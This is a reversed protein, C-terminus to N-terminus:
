KWGREILDIKRDLDTFQNRQAWFPIKNQLQSWIKMEGKNPGQKYDEFAEGTVVGTTVSDVFQGFRQITDLAVTPSRLVSWAETPSFFTSLERKLRVIHYLVFSDRDDDEDWGFFALAALGAILYLEFLTKKVNARRLDALEKQQEESLTEQEAPTLLDEDRLGLGIIYKLNNIDKTIWGDKGFMNSFFRIASLYYGEEQSGLREDYYQLRWRADIGPKLWNRMMMVLRGWSYARIGPSDITNYIGNMRQGVAIIKNRINNLEVDTVPKGNLTYGKAVKVVGDKVELADYLNKEGDPGQLKYQNMITLMLSGNMELTTINNLFNLNQTDLVRKTVTNDKGLALNGRSQDEPNFYDFVSAFKTTKKRQGIEGASAPIEKFFKAKGYRWDKMTFWRGGIAEKLMTAEGTAINSFAVNLNGAMMRIGTYRLLTDVAKATDVQLKGIKINGENAKIKGYVMRSIFQEAMKYSNSNDGPVTQIYGDNDVVAVRDSSLLGAFGPTRKTKTVDRSALVDKALELDHVIELLEDHANMEDLFMLVTSSLDLSVERVSMRGDKGDQRSIFRVPLFDIPNGAEDTAQFDTEDYTRRFADLSAQKLVRLKGAGKEESVLEWMSRKISPIRLGPRMFRPITKQAKLYSGVIMEYYDRLPDGKPRAMIEKGAKSDPDLFSIATSGKVLSKPDLIFKHREHLDSPDIKQKRLWEEYKENVDLWQEKLLKETKRYANAKANIVSKGIVRLVADRSDVIADLGRNVLSIDRDAVRLQAKIDELELNQNTNKQVWSAVVDISAENLDTELGGIAAILEDIAMLFTREGRRMDDYEAPNQYIHKRIEKLVKYSNLQEKLPRLTKAAVQPSSSLAKKIETKLERVEKIANGVYAVLAKKNSLGILAQQTKEAGSSDKNTRKLRAIRKDLSQTIRKFINNLEKDAKDNLLNYNGMQNKLLRPNVGEDVVKMVQEITTDYIDPLGFLRRVARVLRNWWGKGQFIKQFEENTLMEAIFEEQNTFGYSRKGFMESLWGVSTRYLRDITAKFEKQTETIPHNYAQITFAHVLEHMLVYRFYEPGQSMINANIEIAHFMGMYRGAVHKDRVKFDSIEMSLPKIYEESNMMRGLLTKMRQNTETDYLAKVVEKADARFDSFGFSAAWEPLDDDIYEIYHEDQIISNYVPGTNAPHISQSNGNDTFEVFKNAEGLPQIEKYTQSDGVREYLRWKKADRDFMRAYQAWERNTNKDYLSSAQTAVFSTVHTGTPTTREIGGVTSSVNGDKDVRLPVTKVINTNAFIHRIVVKAANVPDVSKAGESYANTLSAHYAALGSDRWFEAPVLDVFSYPTTKFGSTQISFRVLDYALQKVDKNSDTMLDWWANTLNTKNFNGHTNNIGVLQVTGRRNTDVPKLAQLLLNKELRPNAAVVKDIYKNIDRSPQFYSWRSDYNPSIKYLAKDMEKNEGFMYYTMAHDVAQIDDKDRLRADKSLTAEAIEQRVRSFADSNYPYFQKTFQLAARIAYNYFAAVRKVTSKSLTFVDPSLEVKSRGSTVHTVTDIYSQIAAISTFDRATDSSLATNVKAMDQGAYYYQVFDYLVQGQHELNDVVPITLSSALNGPNITHIRKSEAKEYQTILGTFREGLSKIANNLNSDGNKFYEDALGRLVPQNMFTLALKQDVGLDTMYGLTAANFTTINLYGLKPDKQADLASNQQASHNDSILNGVNDVRRGLTDFKYGDVEIKIPTKVQIQDQPISQLTAHGVSFKSFTGIMAKSYKALKEMELDTTVAFPTTKVARSVVGREILYDIMEDHVASDLPNLVELSHAPNTLIAWHIDFLKNAKTDEIASKAVTRKMVYSKDVDFDMGGQKTMEGPIMIVSGASEPLIRAIRVPLMSNKGQTPIRYIILQMAKQQFPNLKNWIIKGTEPDTVEAAKIGLGRVFRAPVGVEAEVLKGDKNTIFKLESDGITEGVGFDALNILSDGPLKQTMLRKKFLGTLIQEYKKGLAPFDLGVMFDPQDLKNKIILLSDFYNDPLDRHSLEELLVEKLDILFQLKRSAPVRLNDELKFLSKFDEYDAKIIDTWTEHYEQVIDKGSLKRDGLQYSNDPEINGVILKEIQTGALIETKAKEPIFFPFRLSEVPVDRGVIPKSLDNNVAYSGVKVSESDSIIDINDREMAGLLQKFAQHKNAWHPLLPTISEKFQEKLIMSSGDSLKMLREGYTFPKLPQLLLKNELGLLYTKQEEPMSTFTFAQYVAKGQRWAANYLMEHDDTWMGNALAIDRYTAIRCYSQADTKNVRSYAAAIKAAVNNSTGKDIASQVDVITTAPDILQALSLLYDPSNSKISSAFIGRSYTKKKGASKIDQNYYGQLGPTILQYGRKFYTEANKYFALDGHFVKSMELRWALDNYFFDKLLRTIDGASELAKPLNENAYRETNPVRSILGLEILKDFYAREEAKIFDAIVQQIKVEYDALRDSDLTGDTLSDALGPIDNLAPMYVFKAANKYSAVDNPSFSSDKDVGKLNAKLRQIRVIESDVTGRLVDQLFASSANQLRKPLLISLQQSKDSLTGLYVYGSKNGSNFWATLRSIFSDQSTTEGYEKPQSTTGDRFASFVNVQVQKRVRPSLLEQLFKNPKYFNDQRFWGIKENSTLDNTLQSILDTIYTNLNIASVQNGKENIFTKAQLDEVYDKALNALNTLLGTQEFPNAGDVATQLFTELTAADQGFLMQNVDTTRKPSANIKDWVQTPLSVGVQALMHQLFSRNEEYPTKNGKAKQVKLEELLNSARKTNVVGDSDLLAKKIATNEWDSILTREINRRDTEIVRAVPQKNEYGVMTTFFRYKSRNFTTFFQSVIPDISNQGAKIHEDLQDKVAAIIPDQSALESIRLYLDKYGALKSSLNAYVRNFDIFKPTGFLTKSIIPQGTATRAITGEATREYEPITALFRKIKASLTKLPSQLLFSVGHIREQANPDDALVEDGENRPVTDEDETVPTPITKKIKVSFGYKGLNQILTTQYGPITNEERRVDEWNNVIAELSKSQLALTKLEDESLDIEENEYAEKQKNATQLALQYEARLEDLLKAVNEPIELIDDFGVAEKEALEMAKQLLRHTSANLAEIQQNVRTFGPVLRYRLDDAKRLPALDRQLNLEAKVKDTLEFNAVNEFLREISTKFGLAKRIYDLIRQFLSRSSAVRPIVTGDSLMYARFDEALAEELELKSKNGYIRAADKIMREYQAPSLQTLTVFHFAEHYGTGEEALQSLLIHANHYYGFAELGGISLVRDVGQAISLYEPGFKDQMWDLEKQSIVKFPGTVKSVLRYRTDTEEDAAQDWDIKRRKGTKKTETAPKEEIIQQQVIPRVPEIVEKTVPEVTTRTSKIVPDLYITANFFSYGAPLDTTISATAKLYEYYNKYSKGFIDVFTDERNLFNKDINKFSNALTDDFAKRIESILTPDLNQSHQLAPRKEGKDNYVQFSFDGGKMFNDFNIGFEGTANIKVWYNFKAGPVHFAIDGAISLIKPNAKSYHETINEEVGVQEINILTKLDAYRKDAVYSALNEKLWEYEEQTLRRPDVQAATFGGSPNTRLVMVTGPAAKTLSAMEAVRQLTMPDMNRMQEVNVPQVTQTPDVFALIPNHDTKGVTWGKAGPKMDTELVSISNELRTGDPNRLAIFDGSNKYTIRTRVLRKGSENIAKRLAKSEPTSTSPNKSSPIQTLPRGTANGNSDTAYVNMVVSEPDTTKFFPWEPEVKIVVEQGPAVNPTNVTLVENTSDFVDYVPVPRAKTKADEAYYYLQRKPTTDPNLAPVFVRNTKGTLPDLQDVWEGAIEKLVTKAGKDELSIAPAQEEAIKVNTTVDNSAPAAPSELDLRRVIIEGQDISVMHDPQYNDPVEIEQIGPVIDAADEAPGFVIDISSLLDDENVDPTTDIDIDPEYDFMSDDFAPEDVLDKEKIDAKTPAKEKAPKSQAMAAKAETKAKNENQKVRKATDLTRSLVQVAEPDTAASLAQELQAITTKPDNALKIAAALAAKKAQEKQFATRGEATTLRALDKKLLNLREGEAVQKDFADQIQADESTLILDFINVKQGEETAQFQGGITEWLLDDFFKIQENFNQKSKTQLRKYAEVTHYLEKIRNVDGAIEGRQTVAAIQQRTKQKLDTLAKSTQRVDFQVALTPLVMDPAVEPNDLLKGYQTELYDLNEEQRTIARQAEPDLNPTRKIEALDERLLDTTGSSIHKSALRLFSLDDIKSAKEVDGVAAARDKALGELMVQDFRPQFKSEAVAGLGAFVGGGLGGFFAATQLEPDELYDVLRTSFDKGFPDFNGLASAMAEKGIVSQGTEELAESAVQGVADKILKGRSAAKATPGVGKMLTTYQLIDTGLNVLNAYWTTSAAEGAATKAEADSLGQNLGEKYTQDYISAAEMTNEMYRSFVASTVGAAVERGARSTVLKSAGLMKAGRGAAVAAGRAPLMLSLSSLVSPANSVWWTSDWPAFGEAEETKFVPDGAAISEKSEKALDSLWNSYEQETGTLLNGWQELDLLYGAGEISGMVIEGLVGQTMANRWMQFGTQQETRYKNRDGFAQVYGTDYGSIDPVIEQSPTAPIGTISPKNAGPALRLSPPAVTSDPSGNVVQPALKIPKPEEAM